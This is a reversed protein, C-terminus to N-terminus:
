KIRFGFPSRDQDGIVHIKRFPMASAATRLDDEIRIWRENPVSLLPAEILLDHGTYKSHNKKRLCSKIGNGIVTLAGETSHMIRGRALRERYLAEPDDDALGLYGPVMGKTQNMLQGLRQQERSQAVTIELGQPVAGSAGRLWCDPVDSNLEFRIEGRAKAFKLHHLVPVVEDRLKKVAGRKARYDALEAKSRPGKFYDALAQEFDDLAIWNSLRAYLHGLSTDPSPLLM